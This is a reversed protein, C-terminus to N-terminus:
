VKTYSANNTEIEIIVSAQAAESLRAFMISRLWEDFCEQGEGENCAQSFRCLLQIRQESIEVGLTEKAMGALLRGLDLMTYEEPPWRVIFGAM